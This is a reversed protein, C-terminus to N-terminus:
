RLGEAPGLLDLLFGTTRAAAGQNAKVVEQAAEGARGRAAPDALWGEFAMELAHPAEVQIAGGEQVLAAAVVAFNSMH